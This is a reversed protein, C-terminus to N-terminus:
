SAAMDASSPIQQLLEDCEHQPLPKSFVEVFIPLPWFKQGLSKPIAAILRPLLISVPAFYVLATSSMQKHHLVLHLMILLGYMSARLSFSATEFADDDRSDAREFALTSSVLSGIVRSVLRYKSILNLALRENALGPLAALTFAAHAMVFPSDSEHAAECVQSSKLDSDSMVNVLTQYYSFSTEVLEPMSMCAESMPQPLIDWIDCLVHFCPGHAATDVQLVWIELLEQADMNNTLQLLIVATETFLAQDANEGVDELSTSGDLIGALCHMLEVVKVYMDHSALAQVMVVSQTYSAALKALDCLERLQKVQQSSPHHRQSILSVLELLEDLYAPLWARVEGVFVSSCQQLYELSEPTAQEINVFTSHIHDLEGLLTEMVGQVRVGLTSPSCVRELSGPKVRQLSALLLFAKAMVDANRHQQICRILLSIINPTEALAQQGRRQPQTESFLMLCCALLAQVVRPNADQFLDAVGAAGAKDIVHQFLSSDAYALHLMAAACARRLNATNAHFLVRWLMLMVDSRRLLELHNGDVSALNELTRAAALQVSQDEDRSLCKFIMKFAVEPIDWTPPLGTTSALRQTVTYFLAEGMASVLLKKLSPPARFFERLADALNHLMLSMDVDAVMVTANRIITGILAAMRERTFDPASRFGACLAPLVPSNALLNCVQEDQCVKLLYALVHVKNRSTDQPASSASRQRSNLRTRARTAETLGLAKMVRQSFREAGEDDLDHLTDIDYHFGGVAAADYKPAKTKTNLIPAVAVDSDILILEDVLPLQEGRLVDWLLGRRSPRAPRAALRSQEENFELVIDRLGSPPCCESIRLRTTADITSPLFEPVPLIRRVVPYQSSRRVSTTSATSQRTAEDASERTSQVPLIEIPYDAEFAAQGKEQSATSLPQQLEQEQQEHTLRGEDPLDERQEHLPARDGALRRVGDGSYIRHTRGLMDGSHKPDPATSSKDAGSELTISDRTSSAARITEESSTSSAPAQQDRIAFGKSLENRLSRVAPRGNRQSSMNEQDYDDAVGGDVEDNDSHSDEHDTGRLAHEAVGQQSSGESTPSLGGQAKTSKGYKELLAQARQMAQATRDQTTWPNSDQQKPTDASGPDLWAQATQLRREDHIAVDCASMVLGTAPRQQSLQRRTLTARSLTLSAHPNLKRTAMLEQADSTRFVSSVADETVPSHSQDDGLVTSNSGSSSGTSSLRSKSVSIRPGGLRKVAPDVSSPRVASLMQEDDVALLSARRFQLEQEDRLYESELVNRWSFRQGPDSQLLGLVLEIAAPPHGLQTAVDRLNDVHLEAGADPPPVSSGIMLELLAIGLAWLDSLVTYHTKLRVEPALYQQVHLKTMDEYLAQIHEASVQPVTVETNGSPTPTTKVPPLARMSMSRALSCLKVHSDQLLFKELRLDGVLLGSIHCDAVALMCQTAVTRLHEGSLYGDANVVTRLSIGSCIEAVLWVEPGTECHLDYTCVYPSQVHQAAAYRTAAREADKDEVQLLALYELTNSKRGKFVSTTQGKGIDHYLIYDEM